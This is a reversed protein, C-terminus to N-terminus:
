PATPATQAPKIDMVPGQDAKLDAAKMADAITALARGDDTSFDIVASVARQGALNEFGGSQTTNFGVSFRASPPATCLLVFTKGDSLLRPRALCHPYADTGKAYDWGDPSMVQDFTVKLILAGPTVKGGAAPFTSVVVPLTKAPAVVTVTSLRTPSAATQALAPAGVAAALVLVALSVAPRSTMSPWFVPM